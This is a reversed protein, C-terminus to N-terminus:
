ERVTVIDIDPWHMKLVGGPARAVIRADLRDTDYRCLVDFRCAMELTDGAWSSLSTVIGTDNDITYHTTLTQLTTNRWIQVSGAVIRKLARRYRFTSDDAAYDKTLQWSTTSGVLAGRDLGTRTCTYDSHDMFRFHHFRGRAMVFHRRAVEHASLAEVARAVNWRGMPNPDDLNPTEQGGAHPVITVLWGAWGGEAGKAIDNPFRTTLIGM